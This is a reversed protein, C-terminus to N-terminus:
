HAKVDPVLEVVGFKPVQAWNMDHAEALESLTVQPVLDSAQKKLEVVVLPVVVVDHEDCVQAVFANPDVQWATGLKSKDVYEIHTRAPVVQAAPLGAENM